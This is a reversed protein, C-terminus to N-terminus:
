GCNGKQLTYQVERRNDGENSEAIGNGPDIILIITHTENYWTSVTFPM